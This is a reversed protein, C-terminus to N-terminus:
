NAGLKQIEERLKPIASSTADAQELRALTAEAGARDSKKTYAVTLNQLAQVHAPDADLVRKFERISRDYDPADGFIYTLGLDTRVNLDDPRIALARTYIKEAESYRGADFNANGLNVLVDYNEPQLESAKQLFAIAEDFRQIQYYLEAARLQADFDAPNQKARDIAAQVEPISGGGGPVTPHGAPLGSTQQTAGSPPPSVVASKNVSNAFIFGIMFGALLGIFIFLVNEKSM